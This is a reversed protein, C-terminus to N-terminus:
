KEGGNNQILKQLIIIIQQVIIDAPKKLDIERFHEIFRETENAM